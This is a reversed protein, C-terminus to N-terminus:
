MSLLKKREESMFKPMCIITELGLYNSIWALSLGMNGSTTECIAQGEQLEGKLIANELIYLAPRDKISGSPNLWEAKCQIHGVKGKYNYEIRLLPTNGIFKKLEKIKETTNMNENYQLLKYISM